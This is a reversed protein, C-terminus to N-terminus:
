WCVGQCLPISHSDCSGQVAYSHYGRKIYAHASGDYVDRGGGVNVLLKNHGLDATFICVPGGSKWDMWRYATDDGGVPVATQISDATSPVTSQRHIHPQGWPSGSLNISLVSFDIEDDDHTFGKTGYLLMVFVIFSVAALEGMEKLFRM